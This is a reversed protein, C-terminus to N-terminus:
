ATLEKFTKEVGGNSRAALAAGGVLGAATALRTV